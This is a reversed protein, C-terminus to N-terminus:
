IKFVLGTEEQFMVRNMQDLKHLFAIIEQKSYKENSKQNQDMLDRIEKLTIEDRLRMIDSFTSTFSPLRKELSDEVEEKHVNNNPYSSVPSVVEVPAAAVAPATSAAQPANTSNSQSTTKKAAAATHPSSPVIINDCEQLTKKMNNTASNNSKIKQVNNINQTTKSDQATTEDHHQTFPRSSKKQEAKATHQQTYSAGNNNTKTPTERKDNKKTQNMKKKELPSKPKPTTKTKNSTFFETLKRTNKADEQTIKKSKRKKQLHPIQQPYQHQQQQRAQKLYFCSDLLSDDENLSIRSCTEIVIERPIPDDLDLETETVSIVNKSNTEVAAEAEVEHTDKKKTKPKQKSRVKPKANSPTSTTSAKRRKNKVVPSPAASINTRVNRKRQRSTSDLYETATVFVVEINKETGGLVYKVDVRQVQDDDLYTKTIKAAGGPKNIGAWTRSEVTVLSGVPFPAAQAQQHTPTIKSNKKNNNTAAM